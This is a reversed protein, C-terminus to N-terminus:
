EIAFELTAGARRNVVYVFRRLDELFQKQLPYDYREEYYEILAAVPDTRRKIMCADAYTITPMERLMLYRKGKKRAYIQLRGFM